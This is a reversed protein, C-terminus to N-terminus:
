SGFRMVFFTVKKDDEFKIVQSGTDSTATYEQHLWDYINRPAGEEWHVNDYYHDVLKEWYTEKDIVM